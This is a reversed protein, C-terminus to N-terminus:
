LVFRFNEGNSGEIRPATGTIEAICAGLRWATRFAARHQAHVGDPMAVVASDVVPISPIGDAHNEILLQKQIDAMACRLLRGVARKNKRKMDAIKAALLPFLREFERYGASAHRAIRTRQNLASLFDM